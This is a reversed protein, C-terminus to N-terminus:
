WVVKQIVKEENIVLSVQDRTAPEWPFRTNAGAFFTHEDWRCNFGPPNFGVIYGNEICRQGVGCFGLAPNTNVQVGVAGAQAGPGIYNVPSVASVSGSGFVFGVRWYLEGDLEFGINRFDGMYRGWESHFMQLSSYLSGLYGLAASQRRNMQMNNFTPVAIAALTGIIGVVVMIEALSYGSSSTLFKKRKLCM